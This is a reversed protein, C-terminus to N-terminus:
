LCILSHSKPGDPTKEAHPRVPADIWPKGSTLEEDWAKAQMDWRKRNSTMHTGKKWFLTTNLKKM